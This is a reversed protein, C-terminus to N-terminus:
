PLPVQRRAMVMNLLRIEVLGLQKRDLPMCKAGPVPFESEQMFAFVLHLNQGHFLTSSDKRCIMGLNLGFLAVPKHKLDLGQDSFQGCLTRIQNMLVPGFFIQRLLAIWCM